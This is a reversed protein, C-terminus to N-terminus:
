AKDNRIGKYWRVLKEVMKKSEDVALQKNTGFRLRQGNWDYHKQSFEVTMVYHVCNDHSEEELDVLAHPMIWRMAITKGTEEWDGKEDTDINYCNELCIVFDDIPSEPAPLAAPKPPPPPPPRIPESNINEILINDM